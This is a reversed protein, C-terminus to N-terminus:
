SGYWRDRPPPGSRKRDPWTPTHVTARNRKGCASGSWERDAPFHCQRAIGNPWRKCWRRVFAFQRVLDLCLHVFGAFPFPGEDRFDGSRGYKIRCFFIVLIIQLFIGAAVVAM